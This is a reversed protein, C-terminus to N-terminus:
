ATVKARLDRLATRVGEELVPHYFPMTLAEAATMKQQVAWALLHAIHEMRPGVMEAGLIVGSRREGYIRLAGKNQAMVRSRGQRSYDVDGCCMAGPDLSSFRAGVFAINPDSFVVGMPARRPVARVEPFNAANAGATRGDDAAEHLLPHLNNVDGALFIPHEGVQMTMADLDTPMGHDDLQVGTNALGLGRLVPRRGAACLVADYTEDRTKGAGDTFYVRAPGDARRAAKYVPSDLHMDLEAGLVEVAADRIVPDDIGALAGGIGVVTVDVGLRHLAQGLELGIVGAGVVLVKGPLDTWDFVGANDVLADGLGRLPPPIFPASGTAIVAAKFHVTTGDDVSITRPGSFRARGSILRGKDLHEDIAEVVFGAFRDRERRVRDMVAEGDITVADVGVGFTGAHRSHHAADAAAILLKSPMCGVRACTTGYPGPDIMVATAGSKEAARRANLGATGAGIIAVDIHIESM